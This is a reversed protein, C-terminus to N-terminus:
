LQGAAPFQSSLAFIPSDSRETSEKRLDPALSPEDHLPEHPDCAIFRIYLCHFRMCLLLLPANSHSECYKRHSGLIGRRDIAVVRMCQADACVLNPVSFAALYLVNMVLLASVARHPM